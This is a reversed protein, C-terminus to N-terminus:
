KLRLLKIGLIGWAIIMLLGGVPVIHVFSKLAPVIEHFVYIFINGSFLITGSILLGYVWKLNVKLRNDNLGLILLGLGSYQLYTVGKQFTAILAEDVIKELSHAAMAGLIIALFIFFVGTTVIRKKM